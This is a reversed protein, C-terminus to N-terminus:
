RGFRSGGGMARSSFGTMSGVRSSSGFGRNGQQLMGIGVGGMGGMGSFGGFGAAGGGMGGGTGITQFYQMQTQFGVAHGTVLPQLGAGTQLGTIAAENTQTQQQLSAISARAEIEPRVIGYYNVATSSGGRLLNIYPSVRPRNYPNGGYQASAQGSGILWWSIALVSGIWLYRNM